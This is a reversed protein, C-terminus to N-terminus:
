DSAPAVLERYVTAEFAQLARIAGEDYFPLVQMLLTAAIERQPDIWFETNFLGAWALSGASRGEGGSDAGSPAGSSAGAAADSDAGSPAGSPPHDGPALAGSVGLAM